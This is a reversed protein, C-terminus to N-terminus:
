KLAGSNTVLLHMPLAQRTTDLAMTKLSSFGQLMALSLHEPLQLPVGLLNHLNRAAELRM